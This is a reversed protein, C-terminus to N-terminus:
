YFYKLLRFVMKGINKWSQGKGQLEEAYQVQIPVEGFRAKEQYTIKLIETCFEYGDFTFHMKAALNAHIAKMGSQSDTVFLGTIIGSFINALKNIIIRDLPIQNVPDLFRSGIVLDLDQNYLHDVLKPIDSAFHQSDGDMTVITTAGKTLAYEIGTQTAAGAGLNVLHRIVKAGASKAYESTNDDSGDDVVIINSFGESLISQVVIAVREGENKAPVVIYIKETEEKKFSGKM